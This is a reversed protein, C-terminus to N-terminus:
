ATVRKPKCLKMMIKYGEKDKTIPARLAHGLRDLDAPLGMALGRAQTCDMQEITMRVDTLPYIRANWVSREFAASHAIVRRGAAVHELVELPPLEGGWGRVDQSGFCYRALIISTNPDEAYRQAGVKRLDIVGRTEFDLHLPDPDM